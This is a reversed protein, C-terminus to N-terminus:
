PAGADRTTADPSDPLLDEEKIEVPAHSESSGVAEAIDILVPYLRLGRHRVVPPFAAPPGGRRFVVLFAEPVHHQSLLRSWTSWVQRWAKLMASRVGAERLDDAYQKAEVYFLASRDLALIDPKLRGINPDIFPNLGQDFLFRAFDLTLNQEARGTNSAAVDRLQDANFVECRAKYRRVLAIRSRGLLVRERLDEHLLRLDRNARHIAKTVEFTAVPTDAGSAGRLADAFEDAQKFLLWGGISSDDKEGIPPKPTIREALARLRQFAFGAQRESLDEFRRHQYERAATLKKLENGLTAFPRRGDRATRSSDSKVYQLWQGLASILKETSKDTEVNRSLTSFKWSKVLEREYAELHCYYHIAEDSLHPELLARLGGEHEKWLALLEDRIGRDQATFDLCIRDAEGCVETLLGWVSPETELFDLLRPLLLVRRRPVKQEYLYAFQRDLLQVLVDADITVM